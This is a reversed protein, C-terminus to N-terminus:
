VSIRELWAAVRPAMELTAAQMPPTMTMLLDNPDKALLGKREFDFLRRWLWDANRDVIDKGPANCLQMHAAVIGTTTADGGAVAAEFVAEPVDALQQWRSSQTKSINLKSLTLPFSTADHSQNQIPRGGKAKQIERLLQGARREARLRIERAQREAKKNKAQRGYIEIARAKDHIEKVEDIDHAAQIAKCMADYLILETGRCALARANNDQTACASNEAGFDPHGLASDTGNIDTNKM